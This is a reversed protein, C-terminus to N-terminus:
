SCRLNENHKKPMKDFDCNKNSDRSDYSAVLDSLCKLEANVTKPSRCTSDLTHTLTNFDSICILDTVNEVFFGKSNM